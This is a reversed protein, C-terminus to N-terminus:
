EPIVKAALRRKTEETEEEHVGDLNIPDVVGTDDPLRWIRIFGNSGEVWDANSAPVQWLEAEDGGYEPHLSEPVPKTTQERFGHADLGARDVGEVVNRSRLEESIATDVRYVLRDVYDAVTPEPVNKAICAELDQPDDTQRPTYGVSLSESAPNEYVQLVLTPQGGLRPAYQCRLFLVSGTVTEVRDYREQLHTQFAAAVDSPDPCTFGRIVTELRSLEAPDSEEGGFPLLLHEDRESVHAYFVTVGHDIALQTTVQYRELPGTYDAAFRDVFEDVYRPLADPFTIENDEFGM